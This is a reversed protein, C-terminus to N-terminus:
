WTVHKLSAGICHDLWRRHVTLPLALGLLQLVSISCVSTAHPVWVFHLLDHKYPQPLNPCMSHVSMRTQPGYWACIYM